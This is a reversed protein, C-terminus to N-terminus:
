DGAGQEADVAGGYAVGGAEGALEEGAGADRQRGGGRRGAVAQAGGIVQAFVGCGGPDGEGDWFGPWSHRFVCPALPRFAAVCGLRDVLYGVSGYRGFSSVIM